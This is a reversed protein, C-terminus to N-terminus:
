LKQATKGKVNRKKKKTDTEKVTTKKNAKGIAIGKGDGDAMKKKNGIKIEIKKNGIEKKTANKETVITERTAKQTTSTGKTKEDDSDVKNLIAQIDEKTQHFFAKKTSYLKSIWTAFNSFFTDNMYSKNKSIHEETRSLAFVLRAREYELANSYEVNAYAPLVYHKFYDMKDMEVFKQKLHQPCLEHFIDVPYLFDYTKCKINKLNTDIIHNDRDDIFLLHNQFIDEETVKEYLKQKRLSSIVTSLVYQISKSHSITHERTFIPRQFMHGVVKEINAVMVEVYDKEGASFVYILTPVMAQKSHLVDLLDKLGPRLLGSVLAHQIVENYKARMSDVHCKSDSQVQCLKKVIDILTNGQYLSEDTNGILTQDLDFFIINPLVM